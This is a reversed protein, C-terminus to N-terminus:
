DVKSSVRINQAPYRGCGAQGKSKMLPVFQKSIGKVRRINFNTKALM